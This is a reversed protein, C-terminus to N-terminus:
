VAESIWWMVVSEPSVCSSTRRSSLAAPSPDSGATARLDEGIAHAPEDRRALLRGLDPEVHVVRRMPEPDRRVARHQVPVDLGVLLPDVVDEAQAVLLVARAAEEREDREREMGSFVTKSRRPQRWM